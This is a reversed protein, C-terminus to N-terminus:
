SSFLLEYCLIRLLHACAVFFCSGLRSRLKNGLESVFLVLSADVSSRAEIVHM